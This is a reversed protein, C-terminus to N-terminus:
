RSFGVGISAITKSADGGNFTKTTEGLRQFEVGGHVNVAGASTSSTAPTADPLADWAPERELIAASTDSVTSGAFAIRGTLMEYLVCGFAWIDTRKDVGQGRAQEPSMYAPTGVIAGDGGDRHRDTHALCRLQIVQPVSFTSVM